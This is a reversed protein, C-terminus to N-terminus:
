FNKANEFCEPLKNRKKLVKCLHNFRKIENKQLYDELVEIFQKENCNQALVKHLLTLPM